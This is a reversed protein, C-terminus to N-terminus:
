SKCLFTYTVSLLTSNSPHIYSSPTTTATACQTQVLFADSSATVREKEREKERKERVTTRKNERKKTM